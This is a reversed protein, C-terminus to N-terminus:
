YRILRKYAVVIIKSKNLVGTWLIQLKGLRGDEM